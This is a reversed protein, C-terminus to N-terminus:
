SSWTRVAPASAGSGPQTLRQLSAAGRAMQIDAIRRDGVAVNAPRWGVNAKAALREDM